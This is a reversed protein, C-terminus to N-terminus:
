DADVLRLAGGAFLEVGGAAVQEAHGVGVGCVARPALPLVDEPAGAAAADGALPHDVREADQVGVPLLGVGPQVAVGEFRAEGVPALGDGHAAGAHGLGLAVDGVDVEGVLAADGEVLGAVHPLDQDAQVVAVHGVRVGDVVHVRPGRGTGRGRGWWCGPRCRGP